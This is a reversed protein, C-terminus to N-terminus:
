LPLAPNPKNRRLDILRAILQQHEAATDNQHVLLWELSLGPLGGTLTKLVLDGTLIVRDAALALALLHMDKALAARNPASLGPQSDIQLLLATQREEANVVVVKRRAFMSARWKVSFRSQHRDWETKLDSSFAVRHCIELVATLLAACHSSHGDKAGASRLVSADIALIRSHKSM